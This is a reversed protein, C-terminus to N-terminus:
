RNVAGSMDVIGPLSCGRRKVQDCDLCVLTSDLDQPNGMFRHQQPPSLKGCGNVTYSVAYELDQRCSDRGTIFRESDQEVGLPLIFAATLIQGRVVTAWVWLCGAQGDPDIWTKPGNLTLTGEIAQLQTNVEDSM